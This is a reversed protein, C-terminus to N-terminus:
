IQSDFYIFVFLSFESGQNNMSLKCSLHLPPPPSNGATEVLLITYILFFNGPFFM